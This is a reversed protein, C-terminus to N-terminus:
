SACKQYTKIINQPDFSLELEDTMKVNVDHVSAQSFWEQWRQAVERAQQWLAWRIGEHAEIPPDRFSVM